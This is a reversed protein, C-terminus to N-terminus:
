AERWDITFQIGIGEIARYPFANEFSLKYMCRVLASNDFSTRRQNKTCRLGLFDAIQHSISM